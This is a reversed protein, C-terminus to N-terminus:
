VFFDRGAEVNGVPKLVAARRNAGLAQHVLKKPPKKLTQTM